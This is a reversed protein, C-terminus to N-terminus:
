VEKNMQSLFVGLQDVQAPSLIIQMHDAGLNMSMKVWNDETSSSEVELVTKNNDQRFPGVRM